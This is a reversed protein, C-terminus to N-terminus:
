KIQSSGDAKKPSRADTLRLSAPGIAQTGFKERIADVADRTHDAATAEPAGFLSLQQASEGLNHLSVGLLRVGRSVDIESLLLQAVKLVEGPDHFPGEGTASRTITHFDGFKVKLTLTRAIRGDRRIRATVQDALRLLELHVDDLDSLDEAFTEENGISKSQRDSVVPREDRGNALAILHDALNNGLRSVLRRRDTLRLDRVYRIGLQALKEATAPGVGWVRRVELPDLFEQEAGARVEWVGTGPEVGRPSARPKAEVSALKSLFKNSAIGVSCPLGIEHAIKNRIQQAIEAGSGWLRIAGSVDLFAEDLALPEVHPTFSQFIDQVGASVEAYHGLDAPLFIVSPCRRQAVVASLASHVGWCRAEYSAAAVVGRAKSGGVVVPLGRLEPRRLLEVSVYFADM